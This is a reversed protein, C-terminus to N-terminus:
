CFVVQLFYLTAMALKPGLLQGGSNSAASGSGLGRWGQHRRLAVKVVDPRAEALLEPRRRHLSQDLRHQCLSKGVLRACLRAM